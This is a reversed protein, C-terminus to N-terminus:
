EGATRRWGPAVNCGFWYDLLQRALRTQEALEAPKVLFSNAGLAYAQAIDTEHASTTLIVVILHRLEPKGRIHQLVNLGSIYPLKLDLLILHPWPFRGRDAFRGQGHLYDLAQLGDAAVHLTCGAETAQLARRLFFVDNEDDEVLLLHPVDPKM